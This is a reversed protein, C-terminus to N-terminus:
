PMALRNTEVGSAVWQRRLNNISCQQVSGDALGVNGQKQHRAESWAILTNTTLTLVGTTAPTGSLPKYPDGGILLNDDGTLLQNPNTNVADLNVFYSLNGQLPPNSSTKNPHNSAFSTAPERSKDTPCFLIKPTNLENSMIQFVAAVNGTIALEMVGGNTISVLMPFHENANNDAAWIRFALGVQKLNSVCAIRTASARNGTHAPMLMALLVGIVVIVIILEILTFGHKSKLRNTKM